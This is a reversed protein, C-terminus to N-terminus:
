HIYFTQIVVPPQWEHVHVKQADRQEHPTFNGVDQKERPLGVPLDHEASIGSSTEHRASEITDM